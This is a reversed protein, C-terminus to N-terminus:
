TEKVMLTLLAQEERQSIPRQCLSSPHNEPFLGRSGYSIFTLMFKSGAPNQQAGDDNCQVAHLSVKVRRENM